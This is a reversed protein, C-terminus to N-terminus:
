RSGASAGGRRGSSSRPARRRPCPPRCSGASWAARADVADDPRHADLRGRTGRAACSANPAACPGRTRGPCAVRTRSVLPARPRRSSARRDAEIPARRVRTASRLSCNSAAIRTCASNPSILASTSRISPARPAARARRLAQGVAVREGRLERRERSLSSSARLFITAVLSPPAIVPSSRMRSCRSM